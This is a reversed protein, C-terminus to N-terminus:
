YLVKISDEFYLALINVLLEIVGGGGNEREAVNFARYM